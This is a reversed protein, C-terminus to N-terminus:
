KTRGKKKQNKRARLNLLMAICNLGLAVTLYRNSEGEPIIKVLSFVLFCVAGLEVILASIWLGNKKDKM